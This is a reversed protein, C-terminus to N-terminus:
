ALVAHARELRARVPVGWPCEVSCTPCDACAAANTPLERYLAVARERHGYGDHYLLHRMVDAVRLGRPCQGTCTGCLHCSGAAVTRAAAEFREMEAQSGPTAVAKVNETLEEFSPMDVIVTSVNPDRLVWRIAQQYPSGPLDKFAESAKGDHVPGLAKMVIVGVHAKHAEAIAPGVSEATFANHAPLVADYRGTKIAARIVEAQHGHASLGNFRVKGQDRATTFAKWLEESEVQAATEAGHIQILEVHDMGLRKLLKVAENETDPKRYFTLPLMVNEMVTLTPILYFNQFIYGFIERRIKTLDRESLRNAQSFISRGALNLEGSTPNDLCGLLNVLTTKGSGSPGIISIFDGKNIRLSVGNVAPIEESGRLYIKKLNEAEIAITNQNM